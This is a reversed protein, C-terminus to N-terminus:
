CLRFKLLSMVVAQSLADGRSSMVELPLARWFRRLLSQSTKLQPKMLLSKSAGGPVGV